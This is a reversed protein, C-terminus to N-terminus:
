SMFFSVKYIKPNGNILYIMFLIGAIFCIHLPLHVRWDYVGYYIYSGYYIAMNSFLIIFMIHKLRLKNVIKKIKSSHRYILVMGLIVILICIFHTIGFIKFPNVIKEDLFFERM